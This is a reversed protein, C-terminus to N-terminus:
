KKVDIGLIPHAKFEVFWLNRPVITAGQKVKDHYYSYQSKDCTLAIAPPQYAYNEARLLKMAENLKCNKRELKGVYKTASVPYVTNEGLIAILVCSPVNFLPSVEECDLIRVLKMLPKKFLKFRAHQFAGTLVSRPMVFAIVGNSNLYLDACKNFFLTAMEMHTFLEVQESSLLGYNLVEGKLWDQYEKNEIYRMAIWPPNSILVDFKAEKLAIPAYVNGLVYGWVDNLKENILQFITHLTRKLVEFEGSTCLKYAEREFLTEASQKDKRLRYDSIAERLASIICGLKYRDRAVNLPMQIRYKNAAVEYVPVNENAVYSFTSTVHPLRVSDSVYIPIFIRKGLKLLEGLAILYNARAITVALPNVDIGAISQLIFDLIEGPEKEKKGLYEKALHIANCLFTGSGCAPDLMRPFEREKNKELWIGLAENLTLQVLWEPTYYEGIRHRESRKIIDQYIEKFVDENIQTMDYRRLQKALNCVINLARKSINPHLIWIFFDEEVLNLIGFSSFYEGTIARRLQEPDVTNDGSLRYYVILKVLTVLYTQDIFAKEEPENGYVIQMNKAWLEFKLRVSPENKVMDWLENLENIILSYTPSGPGFRFRLDDATPTIREKSFVFSDLWFVAEEVSTKTLNMSSIENIDVVVGKKILPGYAKFKIVDTAIGVFNTEPEAETLAQFYKKLKAKADDLERELDVKIEFIVARFILDASGRIGFIKSGVKEEIGPLIETLEVNFLNKLLNTLAVLKAPHSRARRAQELCRELVAKLHPFAM